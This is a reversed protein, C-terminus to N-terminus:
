WIFYIAGSWLDRVIKQEQMTIIARDQITDVTYLSIDTSFRLQKSGSRCLLGRRSFPQSYIWATQEVSCPGSGLRDRSTFM